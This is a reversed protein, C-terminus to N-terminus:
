GVYGPSPVEFYKEPDLLLLEVEENFYEKPYDPHDFVIFDGYQRTLEERIFAADRGDVILFIRWGLEDDLELCGTFRFSYQAYAEDNLFTQFRVWNRGADWISYPVYRIERVNERKPELRQWYSLPRISGEKVFVVEYSTWPNQPNIVGFGGFDWPARWTEMEAESELGRVYTHQYGGPYLPVYLYLIFGCLLVSVLAMAATRHWASKWLKM